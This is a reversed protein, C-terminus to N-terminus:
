EFLKRNAECYERVHDVWQQYWYWTTGVLTGWGKGDKKADESKWLNAHEHIRFNPFGSDNIQKVVQSPLFKRREVEKKVWYEKEITQGLDSNPDIFEIVKDAQNAHNATKKTFLLRYSYRESNYEDETLGADFDAVYSRVRVPIDEAVGGAAQPVLDAFQLSYGLYREIGRAAGFLQKV